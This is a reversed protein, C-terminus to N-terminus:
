KKLYTKNIFEKVAPRIDFGFYINTLILTTILVVIAGIVLYYMVFERQKRDSSNEGIVAFAIIPSLFLILGFELLLIGFFLAWNNSYIFGFFIFFCGL